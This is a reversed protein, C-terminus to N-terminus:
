HFNLRYRYGKMWEYALSVGLGVLLGPPIEAGWTGGLMADLSWSFSWTTGESGGEESVIGRLLSGAAVIQYNLNQSDCWGFFGGHLGLRTGWPRPHTRVEAGIQGLCLTRNSVFDQAVILTIPNTYALRPPGALGAGLTARGGTAAIGRTHTLFAPGGYAHASV